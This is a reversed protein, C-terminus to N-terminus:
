FNLKENKGKWSLYKILCSFKTLILIRSFFLLSINFFKKLFTTEERQHRQFNPEPCVHWHAAIKVARVTFIARTSSWAKHVNKPLSNSHSVNGKRHRMRRRYWRTAFYLMIIRFFTCIILFVNSLLGVWWGCPFMGLYFNNDWSIGM